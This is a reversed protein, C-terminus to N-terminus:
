QLCSLATALIQKFSLDQPSISAVVLAIDILGLQCFGNDVYCKPHTDYAQEKVISCSEDAAIQSDMANILCSRTGRIFKQGAESMLPATVQMYRQCYQFGFGQYYGDPGCTSGAAQDRCLYYNCQSCDNRDLYASCETTPALDECAPLECQSLMGVTCLANRFFDAKGPDALATCSQSVIQQAVVPDCGSQAVEVGFCARVHQQATECIQFDQESLASASQNACAVMFLASSILLTTWNLYKM